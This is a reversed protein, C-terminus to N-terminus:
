ATDAVRSLFANQALRCAKKQPPFDLWLHHTPTKAAFRYHEWHGPSMLRVHGSPIPCRKKDVEVESDGSIIAVLQWGSQFRPGCVGGPKYVVEGFSVGQTGKVRPTRLFTDVSINKDNDAMNTKECIHYYIYVHACGKVPIVKAL